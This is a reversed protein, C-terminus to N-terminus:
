SADREMLVVFLVGDEASKFTHVTWGLMAQNDIWQNVDDLSYFSAAEYEKTRPKSM